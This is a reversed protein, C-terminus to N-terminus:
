RGTLRWRKPHFIMPAYGGSFAAQRIDLERLVYELGAAVFVAHDEALEVSLAARADGRPYQGPEATAAIRERARASRETLIQELEEQALASWPREDPASTPLSEIESAAQALRGSYRARDAQAPDLRGALRWAEAADAFRGLRVRAMALRDLDAMDAGGAEAIRSLYSEMAALDGRTRADEAIARAAWAVYAAPLESDPEASRDVARRYWNLAGESREQDAYLKGLRFMDVASTPEALDGQEVRSTTAAAVRKMDTLRGVRQYANSLYFPAELDTGGSSEEEMLEISRRLTDRGRPDGAQNRCYYLRYLLPGDVEGAADLRELLPLAEAYHGEDYLVIARERVAPEEARAPAPSLLLPVAAAAALLTRLLPRTPHM